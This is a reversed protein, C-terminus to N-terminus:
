ITTWRVSMHATSGGAASEQRRGSETKQQNLTSLACTGDSCGRTGSGEAVVSMVRKPKSMTPMGMAKGRSKAARLGKRSLHALLM